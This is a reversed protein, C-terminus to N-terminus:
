IMGEEAMYNLDSSDAYGCMPCDWTVLNDDDNILPAIDKAKRGAVVGVVRNVRVPEMCGSCTTNFINRTDPM